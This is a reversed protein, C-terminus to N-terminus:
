QTWTARIVAGVEAQNFGITEGILDGGEGQSLLEKVKNFVEQTVVMEVMSSPNVEITNGLWKSIATLKGTKYLYMRHLEFDRGLELNDFRILQPTYPM